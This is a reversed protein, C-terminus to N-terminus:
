HPETPVLVQAQLQGWSGDGHLLTVMILGLHFLMWTAKWKYGM